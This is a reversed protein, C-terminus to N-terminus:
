WHRTKVLLGLETWKIIWSAVEKRKRGETAAISELAHKGDFHRVCKDWALKNEKGAAEEVFASIAALHKDAPGSVMRPERILRSPKDHRAIAVPVATGTSSGPSTGLLPPLTQPIIQTPKDDPSTEVGTGKLDPDGDSDINENVIAKIHKPVSILAFTRLQTVWGDRMLWELIAMYTPKHDRSPILSAWPRPATSLLALIQPLPPLAPFRKTFSMSASSLRRMDANPSVIYVDQQHLPPIAQARRWYVLHSALFQIDKLAIKSTQSIQALSKTPKLVALFQLLADAMPSQAAKIAAIISSLDSLLLLTFHSALQESTFYEEDDEPLKTATTM